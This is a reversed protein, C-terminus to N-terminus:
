LNLNEETGNIPLGALDEKIGDKFLMKRNEQEEEYFHVIVETDSNSIFHHGKQILEM